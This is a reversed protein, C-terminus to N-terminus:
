ETKLNNRNLGFKSLNMAIYKRAENEYIRLLRLLKKQNLSDLFYIGFYAQWKLALTYVTTIDWRRFVIYFIFHWQCILLQTSIQDRQDFLIIRRLWTLIVIYNHCNSKLSFAPSFALHSSCLSPTRYKSRIRSAALLLMAATHACVM